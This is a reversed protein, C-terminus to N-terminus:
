KCREEVADQDLTNLGLCLRGRPDVKRLGSNLLERLGLDKGDAGSSSVLFSLSDLYRDLRSVSDQDRLYMIYGIEIM